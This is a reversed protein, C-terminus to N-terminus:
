RGGNLRAGMMIRSIENDTKAVKIKAIVKEGYGFDKAARLAERRYHSDPGHKAGLIPEVYQGM